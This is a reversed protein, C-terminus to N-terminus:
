DESPAACRPCPDGARYPVEDSPGNAWWGCRACRRENLQVSVVKFGDDDRVARSVRKLNM